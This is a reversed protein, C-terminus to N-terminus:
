VVAGDDHDDPARRAPMRWVLVAVSAVFVVGALGLLTLPMGRWAVLYILAAAISGVVGTWALTLLPDTGVLPPPAPPVYGTDADPEALEYDRPGPAVPGPLQPAPLESAPLEPASPEAEPEPPPAQSPAGTVEAPPVTLDGLSAAIEAFRIDIDDADPERDDDPRGTRGAM